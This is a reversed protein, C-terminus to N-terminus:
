CCYALLLWFSLLLLFWLLLLFVFLVDSAVVAPLGNVTLVDPILPVGAVAVFGDAADICAIATVGTVRLKLSSLVLM